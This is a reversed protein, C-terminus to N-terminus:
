YKFFNTPIVQPTGLFTSQRGMRRLQPTTKPDEFIIDKARWIQALADTAGRQSESVTQFGGNQEAFANGVKRGAANLGLFFYGVIAVM